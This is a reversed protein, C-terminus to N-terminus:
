GVSFIDSTTEVYDIRFWLLKWLMFGFVHFKDLIENITDLPSELFDL